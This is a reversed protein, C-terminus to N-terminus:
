NLEDQENFTELLLNLADNIIEELDAASYGHSHEAIKNLVEEIPDDGIGCAGDSSSYNFCSPLINM